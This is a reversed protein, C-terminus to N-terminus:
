YVNSKSKEPGMTGVALYHHPKALIGGGICEVTHWASEVCYWDTVSCGICCVCVAFQYWGRYHPNLRLERASRYGVCHLCLVIDCYRGLYHHPGVHYWGSGHLMVRDMMVCLLHAIYTHIRAGQDIGSYHIRCLQRPFGGGYPPPRYPTVKARCSLRGWHGM